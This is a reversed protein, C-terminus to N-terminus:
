EAPLLVYRANRMRSVSALTQSTEDGERIQVVFRGTTVAEESILPQSTDIPLQIRVVAELDGSEFEAMEWEEAISVQEATLTSELIICNADGCANTGVLETRGRLNTETVTYGDDGLDDAVTDMQMDWTEGVAKPTSSGFLDDGVASGPRQLPFALEFLEMGAADLEGGDVEVLLEEGDWGVVMRTGAPLIDEHTTPNQFREVEVEASAARGRDDVETIHVTASFAVQTQETFGEIVLEDPSDESEVAQIVEHAEVEVHFRQGVALPRHIVIEYRADASPTTDDGAGATSGGCALLPTFLLIFLATRILDFVM